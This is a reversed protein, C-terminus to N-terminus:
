LKLSLSWSEFSVLDKAILEGEDELRANEVENWIDDAGGYRM